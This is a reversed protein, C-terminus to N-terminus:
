EGEKPFQNEVLQLLGDYGLREVMFEIQAAMGGNNIQSRMAECLSMIVSDLDSEDLGRAALDHQASEVLERCSKQQALAFTTAVYKPNDLVASTDMVCELGDQDKLVQNENMSNEVDYDVVIAKVESDSHISSVLGGHVEVVVKPTRQQAELAAAITQLHDAIRPMTVTLFTRGIPTRAFELM